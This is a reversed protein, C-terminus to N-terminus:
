QLLYCPDPKKQSVTYNVSCGSEHKSNLKVDHHPCLTVDDYGIVGGLADPWKVRKCNPRSRLCISNYQGCGVLVM